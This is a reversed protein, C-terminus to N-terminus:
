LTEYERSPTGDVFERFDSSYAVKRIQWVRQVGPLSLYSAFQCVM